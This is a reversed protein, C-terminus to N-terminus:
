AFLSIHLRHVAITQLCLRVRDKKSKKTHGVSIIRLSIDPEKEEGKLGFFSDM